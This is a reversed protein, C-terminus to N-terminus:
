IGKYTHSYPYRHVYPYVRTYVCTEIHMYVWERWNCFRVNICTFIGGNLPNGLVCLISICVFMKLSVVCVYLHMISIILLYFIYFTWLSVVSWVTGSFLNMHTLKQWNVLFQGFNVLINWSREGVIRFLVMRYESFFEGVCIWSNMWKFITRLYVLCTYCSYVYIFCCVHSHSYFVGVADRCLRLIVVVFTRYIVDFM